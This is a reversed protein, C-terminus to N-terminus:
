ASRRQVFKFVRSVKSAWSRKTEISPKNYSSQLVDLNEHRSMEATIDSRGEHIQQSLTVYTKRLVKPSYLLAPDNAKSRM